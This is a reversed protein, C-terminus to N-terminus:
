ASEAVRVKECGHCMPGTVPGAVEPGFWDGLLEQGRSKQTFWKPPGEDDWQWPFGAKIVRKELDDLYDATKPCAARIRLKEGPHAYAGCLCEGSMGCADKVSNRPLRYTEMYQQFTEYTSFYFPNVWAQNGVRSTARNYGTRIKSEDHRIGTCILVCERSRYRKLGRVVDRIAREKLRQYMLGHMRPGPFGGPYGKVKGLVLDEYSDPPSQEILGWGSSASVDRVFQRTKEIGIGTNIHLAKSRDRWYRWDWRASLHSMTFHTSVLSDHGGSFGALIAVPKFEGIAEDLIRRARECEAEFKGDDMEGGINKSFVPSDTRGTLSNDTFTIM